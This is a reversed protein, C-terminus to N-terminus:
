SRLRANRLVELMKRRVSDALKGVLRVYNVGVPAEDNEELAALTSGYVRGYQERLERGGLISEVFVDAIYSCPKVVDWYLYGAVAHAFDSRKGAYYDMMAKVGADIVYISATFVPLRAAQEEVSLSRLREVIEGDTRHSYNLVWSPVLLGPGIDGYMKAILGKIEMNFYTAAGVETGGEATMFDEIDRCVPHQTTRRSRVRPRCKDEWILWLHSLRLVSTAYVGAIDDLERSEIQEIVRSFMDAPLRAVDEIFGQLTRVHVQSGSAGHTHYSM